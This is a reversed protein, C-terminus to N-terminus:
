RSVSDPDARPGANAAVSKAVDNSMMPRVSGIANKWTANGAINAMVTTDLLFSEQGTETYSTVCSRGLTQSCLSGTSSVNEDLPAFVLDGPTDTIPVFFEGGPTFYNGEMLLSVTTTASAGIYFNSTYLNNVLHIVGGTGGAPTGMEPSRGATAYFHNAVLTIEQADGNLLLIWSSRGNCFHGYETEGDFTNNSITMAKAAGWGTVIMQRGIRAFANHDIWIRSANDVTIADGAFVIGENIDTISLNRVIINSVGGTMTLGKGKIGASAGIGIVTKNSGVLLASAAASDYTMPFTPGTGCYGLVDLIKEQKGTPGVCQRDSYVCGKGSITGETGRFDIVTNLRIIRPTDDICNAGQYRQCLADKLEAPTSVDVVEGGTGGTTGAGFGVPESALAATTTGALLVVTSFVPGMVSRRSFIQRKIVDIM